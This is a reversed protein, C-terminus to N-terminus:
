CSRVTGDRRGPEPDPGPDSHEIASTVEPVEASRIAAQGLVSDLFPLVHKALGVPDDLQPCHGSKPMVILTSGPVSEHLRESAHVPIARDKRGHIVLLPCKVGGSNYGRVTELAIQRAETLIRRTGALDPTQQAFRAVVEPDAQTPDGYLLRAFGSRIMRSYLADPIPIRADLLRFPDGRRRGLRILWHSALIPEDIAVVGRIHHTGRSAARVSVCAGLSNGMMVVPGLDTLMADAFADLQPLIAGPVRADTDGYGPMDVAIAARGAAEFEAMVHRWTDASDIFGHLLVVPVGTGSVSLVRTNVGNYRARGEIIM